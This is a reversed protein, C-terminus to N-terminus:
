RSGQVCINPKMPIYRNYKSCKEHKTHLKNPTQLNAKPVLYFKNKNKECIPHQEVQWGPTGVLDKKTYQSLAWASYGCAASVKWLDKGEARQNQIEKEMYLSLLLSKHTQPIASTRDTFITMAVKAAKLNKLSIGVYPKLLWM